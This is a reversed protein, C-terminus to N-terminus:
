EAFVITLLREESKRARSQAAADDAHLRRTVREFLGISSQLSCICRDNHKELVTPSHNSPKEQQLGTTSEHVACTVDCTTPPPGVSLLCTLAFQEPTCHALQSPKLRRRVPSLPQTVSVTLQTAKQTSCDVCCIYTGGLHMYKMTAMRLLM